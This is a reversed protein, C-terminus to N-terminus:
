SGLKAPLGDALKKMLLLTADHVGEALQETFTDSPIIRADVHVVKDRWSDKVAHLQSLVDGLFLLHHRLHEPVHDYKTKQVMDELKSVVSGFHAKVDTAKLFIQMELVGFEVIKMLHFVSATYRELALCKRAEEVDFSCGFRTIVESWGEFPREYYAVSGPRLAYISQDLLEDRFRLYVNHTEAKILELPMDMTRSSLVRDIQRVTMTLGLPVCLDRLKELQGDLGSVHRGVKTFLPKGPGKATAELHAILSHTACLFQTAEVFETAGFKLM